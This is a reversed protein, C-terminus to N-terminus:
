AKTALADRIVRSLYEQDQVAWRKASKVVFMGGTFM